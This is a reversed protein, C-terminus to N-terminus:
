DALEFVFQNPGGEKVDAKLPSTKPNSYKAPVLHEISETKPTANKKSPDMQSVYSSIMKDSGTTPPPGNLASAGVGSSLDVKVKSVLVINSGITAGDRYTYTSLAFNGNEDTVGSAQRAGDPALFVVSAGEVPKGKYIVQGTTKALGETGGCGCAIAIVASFIVYPWLSKTTKM